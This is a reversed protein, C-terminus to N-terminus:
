QGLLQDLALLEILEQGAPRLPHHFRDDVKRPFPADRDLRAELPVHLAPDPDAVRTGEVVLEDAHVPRDEGRLLELPGLVEAAETPVLAATPDGRSACAVLSFLSTQ